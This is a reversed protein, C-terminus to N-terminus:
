NHHFLCVECSVYRYVCPVTCGLRRLEAQWQWPHLKSCACNFVMCAERATLGEWKSYPVRAPRTFSSDGIHLRKARYMRLSQSSIKDRGQSAGIRNEFRTASTCDRLESCGLLNPIRRSSKDRILSETKLDGVHLRKACRRSLSQHNSHIEQWPLYRNLIQIVLTCDRLVGEELLNTM